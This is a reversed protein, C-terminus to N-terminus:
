HQRVICVGKRPRRLPADTNEKANWVHGPVNMTEEQFSLPILFLEWAPFGKRVPASTLHNGRKM